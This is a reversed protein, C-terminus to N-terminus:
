KNSEFQKLYEFIYPLDKANKEARRYMPMSILEEFDLTDGKVTVNFTKRFDAKKEILLYRIIDARNAIIAGYLPTYGPEVALNIDAGADILLKVKELNDRAAYILPTDTTRISTVSDTDLLYDNPNGGYKLLLKLIEIDEGYYGSALLIPSQGNFYDHLNPNAGKSLLFQVMAAKNHWIAWFLLSQGYKPERYDVSIHEELLIRNIRCTDGSRVAKALQWAPTDQWLRINKGTMDDKSVQCAFLLLILLFVTNKKM